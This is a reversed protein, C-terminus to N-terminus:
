CSRPSSSPPPHNWTPTAALLPCLLGLTPWSLSPLVDHRKRPPGPLHLKWPGTSQSSCAYSLTFLLSSSDLIDVSMLQAAWRRVLSTFGCIIMCLSDHLSDIPGHSCISPTGSVSSTLASATGCCRYMKFVFLGGYSGYIKAM